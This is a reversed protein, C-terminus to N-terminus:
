CPRAPGSGVTIQYLPRGTTADVFGAWMTRYSGGVPGYSPVCGHRVALLWVLRERGNVELRVLWAGSPWRFTPSMTRIAAAKTVEAHAHRAATVHKGEAALGAVFRGFLTRPMRSRGDNLDLSSTMPRSNPGPALVIVRLPRYVVELRPKPTRDVSLPVAIAAAVAAAAAAFALVRRRSSYPPRRIESLLHRRRAELRGAPLDRHPPVTM